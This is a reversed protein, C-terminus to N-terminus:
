QFLDAPYGPNTLRFLAWERKMNLDALEAAPLLWNVKVMAQHLKQNSIATFWWYRRIEDSSALVRHFSSCIEGHTDCLRKVSDLFQERDRRKTETNKSRWVLSSELDVALEPEIEVDDSNQYTEHDLIRPFVAAFQLPLYEALGFDIIRPPRILVFMLTASLGSIANDSDVIINTGSLDGHVMVWPSGDLEPILYRRILSRQQLCDVLNATRLQGNLVRKIKRDVAQTVYTEASTKGANGM